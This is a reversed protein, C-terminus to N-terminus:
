KNRARVSIVKFLVDSVLRAAHPVMLTKLAAGLRKQEGADALLGHIVKTLDQSLQEQWLLVCAGAKQVSQANRVQHNQALGELPVLVTPISWAALEGIAGAGARSLAVSACAYLHPLESRAFELQFYGNKKNKVGEGEQLAKGKGTLHIVDCFSLLADLHQAIADNLAQAGQSGGMVLLIPRSGSLGTIRLGEERSGHTVASRIPNGTYTVHSLPFPVVDVKDCTGHGKDSKQPFGLCVKTALKAIFRNALGMVSDSEHLVVPIHRMRAVLCVPISVAGGKSFVMDPQFEHVIIKAEHMGKWLEAICRLSRTPHTVTRPTVQADRLFQVDSEKKSCVFICTVDHQKTVEEHVALLPSLHGASLGGVLLIKTM